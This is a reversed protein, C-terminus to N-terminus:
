DFHESHFATHMYQLDRSLFDPGAAAKLPAKPDRYILLHVKRVHMINRFYNTAGHAHRRNLCM